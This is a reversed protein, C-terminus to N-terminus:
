FHTLPKGDRKPKFSVRIPEKIKWTATFGAERGAQAQFCFLVSFCCSYRKETSQKHLPM